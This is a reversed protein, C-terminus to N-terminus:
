LHLHKYWKIVLIALIVQVYPMSYLSFNEEMRLAIKDQPFSYRSIDFVSGQPKWEQAATAGDALSTVLQQTVQTQGM